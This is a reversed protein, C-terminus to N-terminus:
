LKNYLDLAETASPNYLLCKNLANKAQTINGLAINIKASLLNVDYDFPYLGSLMNIYGIAKSNKKSNYNILALRYNATFNKTDTKLIAEYQATIEDWNGLYSLPNAIGLKAEISTPVLVIAKKYYAVSQTHDGKLYYLWGLRLSVEYQSSSTVSQLIKIADDYNYAYEYEYSKSFVSHNAKNSDQAFSNFALIFLSIFTIKSLNQIKM